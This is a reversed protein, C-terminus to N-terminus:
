VASLISLVCKLGVLVKLRGTIRATDNSGKVSGVGRKAAVLQSERSCSRSLAVITETSKSAAAAAAAAAVVNEQFEVLVTNNDINRFDNDRLLSSESRARSASSFTASTASPITNAATPTGTSKKATKATTRSATSAVGPSLSPSKRDGTAATAAAATQKKSASPTTRKGCCRRFM